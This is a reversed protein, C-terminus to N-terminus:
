YRIQIGLGPCGTDTEEKKEYDYFETRESILNLIEM